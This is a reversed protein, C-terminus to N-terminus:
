KQRPRGRRPTEKQEEGDVPVYLPDNPDKSSGPTVDEKYTMNKNNNGIDKEQHRHLMM